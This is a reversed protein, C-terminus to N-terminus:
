SGSPGPLPTSRGHDVWLATLLVALAAVAILAFVGAAKAVRKVIRTVTRVM